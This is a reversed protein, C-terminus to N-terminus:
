TVIYKGKYILNCNGELYLNKCEKNELDFYVKLINGSATQLNVPSSVKKLLAAIVASAASGTGCALTEDEVGREYTRIKLTKDDIVEIFNANTGKPEYEKHYRIKKGL